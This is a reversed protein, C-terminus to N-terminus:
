GTGGSSSRSARAVLNCAIACRPGWCSFGACAGSGRLSSSSASNSPSSEEDSSSASPSSLEALEDPADDGSVDGTGEGVVAAGVVLARDCGAGAPSEDVQDVLTRAAGVEVKLGVLLPSSSSLSLSSGSSSGVPGAKVLPGLGVPAEPVAAACSDESVAAGESDAGFPASCDPSTQTM